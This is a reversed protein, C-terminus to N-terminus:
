AYVASRLGNAWAKYDSPDLDFLSAYRPRSSLFQSHDRYSDLPNKYKRFCEAAADDDHRVSKGKWTNHCKIGFHNNSEKVLNSKGANTELIGQALTISAPVGYLKMEKMAVEAFSEIYAKESTFREYDKDSWSKLGLDDIADKTREGISKGLNQETTKSRAIRYVEPNPTCSQLVLGLFLVVAALGSFYKIQM